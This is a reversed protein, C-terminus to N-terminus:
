DRYHPYHNDTLFFIVEVLDFRYIYMIAIGDIAYSVNYLRLIKAVKLRLFFVGNKWNQIIIGIFLKHNQRDIM